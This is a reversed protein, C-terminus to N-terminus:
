RYADHERRRRSQALEATNATVLEYLVARKGEARRLIRGLRQVAERTSATGSVIVGISAEPVDVGENLVRSTVVATYHASRFGELVHRREVPDTKHTIAPVLLARSIRYCTNNDNTFIIVREGRHEYLISELVRLKAQPALAISKQEYFARLARRGAPSRCTARLFSQWGTPGRMSIGKEDVFDRYIARAEDHQQRESPNLEVEVTEIRYDSLIEGSLEGIERRYVLPGVLTELRLHGEDAREPTATLGLRFPAISGEAALAYSPSPLHHAEDFVLLGFRHGLRELHIYASDYTTITIDQIDFHGGGLLGVPVGFATSMRDYWQALLELTPAVVLASRQTAAIALEAVYTKGAGTPLVVVGRKGARLWAALAESQHAFPPRHAMHVLALDKYSRALDTFPAGSRHLWAFAERYASAPARLKRVRPDYVFHPPPEAPPEGNLVLTGQDFELTVATM